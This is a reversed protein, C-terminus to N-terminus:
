ESIDLSFDKVIIKVMDIIQKITAIAPQDEILDIDRFGVDFFINIDGNLKMGAPYIFIIKKEDIAGIKKPISFRHEFTGLPKGTLKFNMLPSIGGIPVIM